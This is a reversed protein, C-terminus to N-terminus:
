ALAGIELAPDFNGYPYDPGSTVLMCTNSDIQSKFARFDTKLDKTLPVKRLEIQFYFCAKDFAAHATNNLVMNPKTVGRAKAQERYALCALLISETGGSTLVGCSNQDGNYLNAIWRIIEAEMQTVSKFEDMHLPNTVIYKRMVEGIFDWHKEDSIYVGGSVLGGDVYCKRNSKEGLTLRKLIEEQSLPKMPLEKISTAKRQVEFKLRNEDYIKKEEAAVKGRIFPLKTVFRFIITM